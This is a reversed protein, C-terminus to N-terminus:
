FFNFFDLQGAATKQSNTYNSSCRCGTGLTCNQCDIDGYKAISNIKRHGDCWMLEALMNHKTLQLSVSPITCLNSAGHHKSNKLTECVLVDVCTNATQLFLSNIKRHGDCRNLLCTTNRPDYLFPPFQAQIRLETISRTKWPKSYLFM